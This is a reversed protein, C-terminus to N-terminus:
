TSVIHQVRASPFLQSWEPSAVAQDLRVRMNRSGNQRNDCTTRWKMHLESCWILCDIHQLGYSLIDVKISEDWFLGLGSGNGVGDVVFCHKFGIKFRHNSV